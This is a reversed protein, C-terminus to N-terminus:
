LDSNNSNIERKFLYDKEEKELWEQDEKTWVLTKKSAECDADIQTKINAPLSIYGRQGNITVAVAWAGQVKEICGKQSAGDISIITEVRIGGSHNVTLEIQKGSKTIWNSKM